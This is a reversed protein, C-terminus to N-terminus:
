PLTKGIEAQLLASGSPPNVFRLESDKLYSTFGTVNRVRLLEHPGSNENVISLAPLLGSDPVYFGIYDGEEVEIVDAPSSPVFTRCRFEDGDGPVVIFRNCGVNEYGGELDSDNSNSRRWVCPWLGSSANRFGIIYHCYQWSVIAGLCNVPKSLDLYMRNTGIIVNQFEDTDPRSWCINPPLPSPTPVLSSSYVSTYATTTPSTSSILRSPTITLNSSTAVKQGLGALIIFFISVFPRGIIIKHRKMRPSLFLEM